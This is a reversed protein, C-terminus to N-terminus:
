IKNEKIRENLEEEAQKQDAWYKMQYDFHIKGFESETILRCRSVWAPKKFLKDENHEVELSSRYIKFKVPNHYSSTSREKNFHLEDHSVWTLYYETIKIGYPFLRGESNESYTYEEMTGYFVASSSEYKESRATYLYFMDTPKENVELKVPSNKSGCQLVFDNPAKVEVQANVGFCVLLLCILKNM